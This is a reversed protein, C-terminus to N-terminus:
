LVYPFHYIRAVPSISGRTHVLPVLKRAGHSVNSKRPKRFSVEALGSHLRSPGQRRSRFRITLPFGKYFWHFCHNGCVSKGCQELMWILLVASQYPTSIAVRRFVAFVNGAFAPLAKLRTHPQPVGSALRSPLDSGAFFAAARSKYYAPEGFRTSKM